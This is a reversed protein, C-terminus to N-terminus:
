FILNKLILSRFWTEEQTLKISHYIKNAITKLKSKESEPIILNKIVASAQAAQREKLKNTM